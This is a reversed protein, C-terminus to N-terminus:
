AGAHRCTQQAKALLRLQHADHVCQGVEYNSIPEAAIQLIQLAYIRVSLSTAAKQKHRTVHPTPRAALIEHLVAWHGDADNCVVHLCLAAVGLLLLLLLLSLM